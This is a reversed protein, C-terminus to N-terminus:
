IDIFEFLLDTLEDDLRDVLEENDDIVALKIKEIIVKVLAQREEDLEKIKREASDIITVVKSSLRSKKWDKEVFEKAEKKVLESMGVGGFIKTTKKGTSVILTNVELIGNINYNFEVEIIETGEPGRPIGDVTFSGIPLNHTTRPEEGQFVEILVKEQNDCLTKYPQKESRPITLNKLILPSFIDDSIVGGVKTAINIGLTHPAVDTLIFDYSDDFAGSKIGGQIAAGLAVAEDPNINYKVRKGFKDELLKKVLPIRTSGGIALVTDVDEIRIKADSVVKEIIEDTNKIYHEILKEFENRTVRMDIGMPNGDNDSLGAIFPINLSASERFSLEKKIDELSYKLQYFGPSNTSLEMNNRIRFDEIVFENLLKDFDSGGLMSNGQSSKVAFIGDSLKLVTADFTGGGLDYVLITENNGFAEIGYALAAATPENIIREVKLGAIEGADKTAKRQIDDFAAPVTIVAEDIEEGLIKEVSDKIYRLIYASIQQPMYEREGVKIKESRGMLRKVEIVTRDHYKIANRKAISGVVIEGSELINVVSPTIREGLDNEIIIPKGNKLVAVASNTTGLDIGVILGM